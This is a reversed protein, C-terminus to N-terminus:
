GRLGKGGLLWGGGLIVVWAIPLWILNHLDTM